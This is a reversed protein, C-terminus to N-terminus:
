KKWYKTYLNFILFNIIVKNKYILVSQNIIFIFVNDIPTITTLEDNEDYTLPTNTPKPTPNKTAGFLPFSVRSSIPAFNLSKFFCLLSNASIATSFPSSTVSVELSAASSTRFDNISEELFNREVKDSVAFSTWCVISLKTASM